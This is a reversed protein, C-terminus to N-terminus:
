RDTAEGEVDVHPLIRDLWRPLWWNRDGLLEMSAPVLLMRVITADLLVAVALGVGLLKIARDLDFLFSGFVMVMIAAAATVVKATAALGDAVSRRSDGTRRWEERIRSLLFVEYDMSLGFVIAFLLMPAWPEIPAPQVGTIGSLWGWQFLMVVEGYAAGISLMNMIVAKIPVFISRFVVMLLLFSLALVVAFVPILRSTLYDAYDLNAANVGTVLVDIGTEAEVERLLDGRLRDVLHATESDQPGTGPVLQWLAASSDDSILPDSIFAVNGDSRVSDTVSALDPGTSGAAVEAVLYLPASFGPGFGDVILDYARKTTSDPAANSEDAFGLEIGLVPIALALLLVSGVLAGAWPRRQVIRSWQWAITEERPRPPPMLVREKLPDVFFGAVLVLATIGFAAIALPVFKIGVGFLSVAVFGAAILGCRRVIAIRLDAFGLLAPLLTVSALITIAVVAAASIGLSQVFKVGVLTLSLLSIVVTVGAFIVSRGATNITIAIADRPSQGARLQDRYRTVILLAYDIGVGLGMMIGLISAVEPVALFHSLGFVIAIGAVIGALAVGVSLGMALVSGLAVILIVIAFALGLAEALPAGSTAFYFSGREITLGDIVPAHDHIYTSLAQSDASPVDEPMEINAFAITGDDSIQGSGEPSYPSVVTIVIPQEAVSNFLSEMATKVDPDTVGQEARFVITGTANTGQGGFRSELIEFGTRSESAPLNFEERFENGYLGMVGLSLVLAIIWSVVVLKRHDHCWVGLNTFMLSELMFHVCATWSGLGDDNARRYTADSLRVIQM